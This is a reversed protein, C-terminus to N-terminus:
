YLGNHVSRKMERWKKALLDQRLITEECVRISQAFLHAHTDYLVQAQEVPLTFSNEMQMGIVAHMITLLCLLRILMYPGKKKKVWCFKCENTM